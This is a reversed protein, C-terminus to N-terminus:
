PLIKIYRAVITPIENHEFVGKTHAMKYRVRKTVSGGWDPPKELFVHWGLEYSTPIPVYIIPNNHNRYDKEDLFKNIPLKQKTDFYWLNLNGNIHLGFWKWGYGNRYKPKWLNYLSPKDVKTIKELCM